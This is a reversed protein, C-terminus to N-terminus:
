KKKNIIMNVHKRIKEDVSNINKTEVLFACNSNQRADFDNINTTESQSYTRTQTRAAEAWYECECDNIILKHM